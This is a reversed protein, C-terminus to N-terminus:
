SRSAMVREEIVGCRLVDVEVLGLELYPLPVEEEGDGEGETAAVPAASPIPMRVVVGLLVRSLDLESNLDLTPDPPRPNAEAAPIIDRTADSDPTRGSDAESGEKAVRSASGGVTSNTASLPMIEAWELSTVIGTGTGAEAQAEADWLRRWDGDDVTLYADFMPPKMKPDVWGRGREGRVAVVPSPGFSPRQRLSSRFYIIICIAAFIFIAAPVAYQYLASSHSEIQNGSM